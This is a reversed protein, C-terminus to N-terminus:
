RRRKNRQPFRPEGKTGWNGDLEERKLGPLKMRREDLGLKRGTKGLFSAVNARARDKLGLTIPSTSPIFGPTGQDKRAEEPRVGSFPFVVLLFDKETM